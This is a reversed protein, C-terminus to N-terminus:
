SASIYSYRTQVGILLEVAKATLNGIIPVPKLLQESRELRHRTYKSFFPDRMIYFAWLFQRRKLEQKEITSLSSGRGIRPLTVRYIIGMGATDVALSVFWPKWSGSGYKRTFLAYLFPRLILLVEGLVFCEGSLGKEHWISVMTSRKTSSPQQSSLHSRQVNEGFKQFARMARGELGRGGASWHPFDPPGVAEDVNVTAGGDILMKYGSKHLLILRIIAKAGEMGALFSWIKDKGLFHEAVVEFFVETEKVASICLSWPFRPEQGIYPHQAHSQSNAGVNRPPLVPPNEIIHQNIAAILGVFASVAEAGIESSSFREPLFWTMANACTEMSSIFHRNTRVWQKYAEM